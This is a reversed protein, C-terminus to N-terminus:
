SAARRMVLLARAADRPLTDAVDYLDRPRTQGPRAVLLARDCIDSHTWRSTTATRTEPPASRGPHATQDAWGTEGVRTPPVAPPSRLLASPPVPSAPRTGCM